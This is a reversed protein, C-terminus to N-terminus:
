LLRRDARRGRMAVHRKVGKKKVDKVFSKQEFGLVERVDRILPKESPGTMM